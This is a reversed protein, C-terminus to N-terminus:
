KYKLSADLTFPKTCIDKYFVYSNYFSSCTENYKCFCRPNKNYCNIFDKGTNNGGNRTIDIFECIGKQYYLPNMYNVSQALKQDIKKEELNKKKKNEIDTLIREKTMGFYKTGPNLINYEISPCNLVSTMIAEKPSWKSNSGRTLYYNEKPKTKFLYIESSKVLNDIDNKLNFIDSTQHNNKRVTKNYSSEKKSVPKKFFIDSDYAEQSIGKLNVDPLRGAFPDSKIQKLLLKPNNVYLEYKSYGDPLWYDNRNKIKLKPKNSESKQTSIIRKKTSKNNNGINNEKKNQDKNENDNDKKIKFGNKIINNNKKNDDTPKEITKNNNNNNKDNENNNNKTNEKILKSSNDKKDKYKSPHMSNLFRKILSLKYNQEERYSFGFQRQNEEDTLRKFQIPLSTGRSNTIKDNIDLLSFLKPRYKFAFSNGSFIRPIKNNEISFFGTSTKSFNNQFNNNCYRSYSKPRNAKM